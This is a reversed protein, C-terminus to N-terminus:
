GNQRCFLPYSMVQPVLNINPNITHTSPLNHLYMKGDITLELRLNDSTNPSFVIVETTQQPCFRKPVTFNSEILAGTKSEPFHFSSFHINVMDDVQEVWYEGSSYESGKILATGANRSGVLKYGQTGGFIGQIIMNAIFRHGNTNPHVRDNQFYNDNGLLGWVWNTINHVVNKSYAIAVNKLYDYGDRFLINFHYNRLNMGCWWIVANPYLENIQNLLVQSATYMDLAPVNHNIDNFGGMVCIIDPNVGENYAQILSDFFTNGTGGAKRVFGAGGVCKNIKVLGLRNAILSPYANNEGVGNGAGWSDGIFLCTKGKFAYYKGKDDTYERANEDVDRIQNTLDTRLQSLENQVGNVDMVVDDYMDKVEKTEKRYQEVQANYNGTLAWYEENDIEVGIPIFTKSTYSNGQYVVITLPEYEKTNDWEAPTAFLPVYRAGVYINEKKLDKKM